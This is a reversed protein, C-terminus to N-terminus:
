LEYLKTLQEMKCEWTLSRLRNRGGRAMGARIEPNAYLEGIASVFDRVAREPSLCPVKRGISEDVIPGFGCIDFCVIPLGASIAEMIVTSTTEHVSTFLFVQSCRMRRIVEEHPVSGHWVVKDAVGLRTALSRYRTQEEESGGGLIDLVIDDAKLESLIKLALGLQKSAIFRGAWLLHFRGDEAPLRPLLDGSELGTEPIVPLQGSCLKGFRRREYQTACIVADARGAAKRVRVSGQMQVWNLMNKLWMKLRVGPRETRFFALPIQSMGGVPGWVYRVDPIQWLFGPERFGVMNLQHVVDVAERSLIRRAESLARKQWRRYHWYFRWDGQNWCMKRIRDSVPLYYFHMRRGQPLGPLAAEIRDRFEGETIIHLEFREAMHVCWNWGMGLESGTGPSVAYANVLIKKM